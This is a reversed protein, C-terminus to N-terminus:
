RAAYIASILIVLFMRTFSYMGRAPKGAGGCRGRAAAHGRGPTGMFRQLDALPPATNTDFPPPLLSRVRSGPGCAPVNPRRSVASPRPRSSMRLEQPGDSRRSLEGAIDFIATIAVAHLGVM